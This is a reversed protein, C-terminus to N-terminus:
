WVFQLTAGEIKPTKTTKTKVPNDLSTALITWTRLSELLLFLMFIQFPWELFYINIQKQTPKKNLKIRVHM